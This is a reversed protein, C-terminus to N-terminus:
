KREIEYFDNREKFILFTKLAVLLEAEEARSVAQIWVHDPFLLLFEQLIGIEGKACVILTRSNVIKDKNM